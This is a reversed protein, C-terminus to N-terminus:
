RVPVLIPIEFIVNTLNGGGLNEYARGEEISSAIEVQAFKPYKAAFISMDRSRRDRCSVDVGTTATLLNDTREFTFAGLYVAKGPLVHFRISFSGAPDIHAPGSDVHWRYIEYDGAPLEAAFLAGKLHPGTFDDKDFSPLQGGYGLGYAFYGEEGGGLQRYHLRFAGRANSRAISGIVVGKGSAESLAYDQDINKTACAALLLCLALVSLPAACVLKRM